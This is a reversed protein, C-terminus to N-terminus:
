YGFGASGYSLLKLFYGEINDKKVKPMCNLPYYEPLMEVFLVPFADATAEYVLHTHLKCMLKKDLIPMFTYIVDFQRYFRSDLDFADGVMLEEESLGHAKRGAEVYPSHYEIGEAQFGFEKALRVIRGTGAGVDLFRIEDVSRSDSFHEMVRCFMPYLRDTYISIYPFYGDNSESTVRHKEGTYERSDRLSDVTDYDVKTVEKAIEYFKTKNM